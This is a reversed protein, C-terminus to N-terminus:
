DEPLRRAAVARGWPAPCGILKSSSLSRWVCKMLLSRSLWVRTALASFPTDNESSFPSTSPSTPSVPAPLDSVASDIMPPKGGLAWIVCPEIRNLSRSSTPKGGSFSSSIRPRSMEIMTCDGRVESSGKARMPSCSMRTWSRWRRIPRSSARCFASFISLATWIGSGSPRMFAQGCSIDPPIAWRTRM